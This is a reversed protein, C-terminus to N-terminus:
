PSEGQKEWDTLIESAVDIVRRNSTRARELLRTRAVDRNLHEQAMLVGAALGITDRTTLADTLAKSLRVPTDISQATGLLTAAADALLGLLHVETEGFAHPEAAYVKLAGVHRGRYIMPSSLISGIGMSSVAGIWDPWRTETATDDVRQPEGTAWASLCPGQGLEYQLADIAEVTPDTSASSLRKGDEDLLSFGAGTASPVTQHAAWALKSAASTADKENLIMGSLHEFIRSLEVPTSDFSM